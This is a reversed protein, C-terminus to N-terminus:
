EEVYKGLFVNMHFFLAMIIDECILVNTKMARNQFIVLMAQFLQSNIPFIGNEHM